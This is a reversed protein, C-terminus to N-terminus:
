YTPKTSSACKATLNEGQRYVVAIGGPNVLVADHDGHLMSAIEHIVSSHVVLLVPDGRREAEAVADHIVPRVRGKFSNLSEGDPVPIHQHDIYYQLLEKNQTDKAKGSFSGIDWARLNPTVDFGVGLSKCIIQSTEITRRRDSSIIRSFSVRELKLALDRAQDLGNSNLPL